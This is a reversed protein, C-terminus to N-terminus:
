FETARGSSSFTAVIPRHDSGIGWNPITLIYTETKIWDRAMAPSLLIYDIRSYSDEIGYYHTWTVNRPEFRPVPNPLNDGNREAPRTDTLKFKGRGIIEKTSASSKVDNFDGLVIIKADPNATLRADVIGRLVKAEELRLQAEDAEPVPRRSKLHAVILTFTFNTRAQVDVEAFGRSVSFRRGDLLFNDNTHPHRAAFPFKSLVAVHINTDAGTVHDWYPFDLGDTKLSARLELLANTGGMEELALVDPNLARIGERIKAKAEASKVFRRSETPQDLYNEVNYTAVRFTGAAFTNVGLLLATFFALRITIRM